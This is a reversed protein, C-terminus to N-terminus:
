WRLSGNLQIAHEPTHFGNERRGFEFGMEANPGSKYRVGMRLAQGGDDAAEAGIFPVWLAAKRRGVIGYGLEAQFRQAADFPSNRALGSIDQQTWLSQVGSQAAGWASGLKMSLGRGDKGPTYALSGSFGWEEYDTDEHAVLVRARVEIALRNVAFGFGGNVEVGAGTEADGGDYRLGAELTPSLMGGWVPMAGSGELLLRLRSTSGQADVLGQVAESATRTLLADSRLALEFRGSDGSRVSLSTRGGFAAMRNSLEAEMASEGGQATLQLSGRGYGIAGWLSTTDNLEFHAYPHLSTLTSQVSGGLVGPGQYGGEGESYSLTSGVLWRGYRKDLGLMATTVEGDLSLTGESGSFRTSAAEGWATWLGSSADDNGGYTYFFSSGMLLDRLSPLLGSADAGRGDYSSMDGPLPQGGTEDAAMFPMIGAVPSIGAGQGAQDVLRNAAWPDPTQMLGPVYSDVDMRTLASPERGGDQIGFSAFLQDLRGGGVIMHEERPGRELRRAIAQTVHDSSARGFRALWAAPMPDSNVIIGLAQGDHIQANSANTLMLTLTEEGEDHSDDIISVEVRGVTQGAEFRLTDSVAAYDQGATATGDATEYDVWVPHDVALTLTVEFVLVAGPGEGVEADAVSLGREIRHVTVSPAETLPRGDITCIAGPQDCALDVVPSITVPEDTAPRVRMAWQNALFERRRDRAPRVAEISGGTVTFAHELLRQEGIVAILDVDESFQLHVEFHSESGEHAGPIMSWAATLGPQPIQGGVMTAGAHAVDVAPGSFSSIEGGNLLLSDALVTIGGIPGEDAAVLHEFVLTDEPTVRSFPATVETKAGGLTLTVSPVGAETNVRVPEDFQLTVRALEGATWEGNRDGDPEIEVATVQSRRAPEPASTDCDVSDSTERRFEGSAQNGVSTAEQTVVDAALSVAVPEGWVNPTVRVRYGFQTDYSRGILEATANVLTLDSAPDFGNVPEYRLYEPPATTFGISIFFSGQEDERTAPDNFNRCILAPVRTDGSLGSTGATVVTRLPKSADVWLAQADNSVLWAGGHNARMRFVYRQNESISTVRFGIGDECDVESSGGGISQWRLNSLDDSRSSHDTIWAIAADSLESSDMGEPMWCVDVAPVSDAAGGSQPDTTNEPVAVTATLGGTTVTASARLYVSPLGAGNEGVAAVRYRRTESFRLGVHHRYSTEASETNDEIEAWNAGGDYSAEVRYGRVADEVATWTLDVHTATATASLDRVQAPLEGQSAVESDSITVRLEGDFLSAYEAGQATHIIISSDHSADDDEAAFVTVTQATNWSSPTFTLSSPTVTADTSGSVLPTVTVTQTPETDLVVTYTASAGESLTLVSPTVTVGREDNDHISLTTGTVALGAVETTGTISVAEVREGIRDELPTFTFTATGSTQGSPITLSLDDVAVYDAGEIAADDSAGVSVTLITPEARAVGNLAGTVTVSVNGNDEDVLAPDATLTVATDSDDVTVSVDDATVSNAGYDAGSVAHELVATDNGADADQAASVTVTQVQDWNTSTFTLAASVTVDSSSGTALLPTVTVTQTPETDLVVTYTASAGESLTLVSPTVTVGREDNDHISLTTGTVALGAVETTGTISVAEVREDIRDELPTFTFTATGSTQGSPITLSLDDVAVYDAGEIAADDSAGVSVTLITPEARAVGNLAGTVTVSVNGNDEDVLAPDATLTVATDSDDVTVSVDDATVSNAGYDAGSVAHELVATDNGADADQAASVTVTQVQDWNTSTFTLAASVTVDSSSGTALLPTVTVTQTPETDLVVTYTASAGESLTLVSPTVTVGREDNDHISLTTGTVALGAVETTGTISVAEVREGIRDELPTFTFTATGSTQGSPITLSLDDVAVYDAGEIAADDSAGVSVTLITPEARAVGNLTGTVIVDTVSADEDVAPTNVSFEVGSSVLEDDDITVSVSDATVGNVGYDAGSVAHSLTVTDDEADDDQHATVTVTQAQDWNTRNFWILGRSRQLDTGSPDSLTVKVSGSPPSTLVVSYQASGGESVTLSTPRVVVGREDDRITIVASTVALGELDTAGTLTLKESGEVIDDQIPTLTVDVTGRTQGAEITLTVDNVTAYDTGQTTADGPAGVSVSVVTDTSRAGGVLMGTVTVPTAASDEDVTEPAASLEVLSGASQVTVTFTATAENYDNAGEATATIVCEGLGNITLAGNVADVSCVTQSDASVSYSLATQTGRPVTVTPAPSGFTVSSASYSFGSLTQDGKAVVPFEIDVTGTNGAVDSATVTATATAAEATDPTGSIVGISSDISLGSPLGAASYGVIGSGGSPGMAAIEVDVKLVSPVPYTPVRPPALDITLTREVLYPPAFDSKAASVTVVVSAGTIYAADRPVSVSWTATGSDDASTATLETSGVMVSVDVGAESGTNGNIAFGAAKEAINVIDDDAIPDVSLVIRGSANITVVFTATGANYDATAAATATITCAGANVITLAGSSADVTCATAPEAAYRLAGVAGTPATITPAAEDFAISGDSYEFGTLTQDGKAVAPFTLDVTDTNGSADSVTVTATATSADATDPTASITGTAANITLGSPLGGASYEDIGSGDTPDMATIAVGVKLSDPATYSPATPATLDVTLTRPPTAAATYGTKTADVTVTVSSETLHSADAAVDVSWEAIGSNDVSTATQTHTGLKVTVTVGTVAGTDGNITFGAAKEAINITDDTAIPDVSLVITGSASITLVFTDTAVNYDDTSAATATITCTGANVITLEGTSADVTCATAPEAAYRLAGVAGTPATITPVSDGFTISAASYQFGALTQEGKAVAPFTLDVTDTNGAADTVTVTADATNEDAVDPTGSITGTAANITLGSPLGGASYENIGSGDTPDMATIAEVVKLSDPATYSPAAPATLDVTLTRTATSAATYGTRAADVTVAVSAETIYSADAAVDVSWTAPNDDSSTATQTHTGVTVTVTAGTVAGTDGSITFGAAKEVINITNDTAIPDVTLVIAGSANITLVFTATAANYDDTAAATATITCAGANVITLAGSSADVTCAAAPEAAYSVDGVAGTPATITPAAAGFAISGASYAFGALTQEGKAVAPFTLDVTDTNGAADAATVTVTATATTATDPAGTITGTAANITLGSPLRGASYEDIGSGDTPDMATIAEGVKLSAPATYSPAAPAVLDVTLTRTATAAATYGTRTADVTVTVSSETIYSADAAVDVSWTAPNDDSSTATRTNSGVKVTVTAGTVVGTNGSISFGAAKEAINITDDTAIPDLTLVIAGSANITLVFTATAANYDDTAAATATIVCEGVGVLALAGTSANVTCVAAPLASFSVSTQAGSPATVTPATSDLTVSISSYQFGTLTQDGKVVAPFTISVTDTNGATDRATVTADATGADATDPTGSIAGTGADIRLGSPLGTASYINIGSGGSPSMVAIAVGVQLSLPATYAPAEPATLDVTLTREVASPPTFGTKSANVEVDVSTGIIYGANGPVSVSWTAPNVTSSTANLDTGGVSVTVSVGGESGTDGGISFGSAKEAINVTNDGAIVGLNLVLEPLTGQTPTAAMEASAVGGGVSNRARLQFTYQTNNDLGDVTFSDENAGSPASNAIATWAGYGGDSKRRYEHGSIGTATPADWELTVGGDSPTVGFGTPAAPALEISGTRTFVLRAIRAGTFKGRGRISTIVGKPNTPPNSLSFETGNETGADWPYLDVTLSPLWSGSSDLLSRGSVGVFWDPSPAVMSTLTIRPHDSTFAVNNHTRSSNVGPAGLTISREANPKQANVESVLTSTGGLEAMFEVGATATGGPALFTVQDNHIGGVFTTFHAGGPLGGPSVSTTWNGRIRISYTARSKRTVGADSSSPTLSGDGGTDSENAINITVDLTASDTDDSVKVTVSHSTKAEYDLHARTRLQGSNNIRFNGSDDGELSYTLTDDDADTATYPSGIDTNVASNENVSITAALGSDFAPANNEQQAAASLPALVAATALLAPLFAAAMADTVARPDLTHLRAM